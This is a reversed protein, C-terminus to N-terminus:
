KPIEPCKTDAAQPSGYDRSYGVCASKFMTSILILEMNDLCLSDVISRQEMKRHHFIDRMLWKVVLIHRWSCVTYKHQFFISVQKEDTDILLFTVIFVHRPDNCVSALNQQLSGSIATEKLSHRPRAFM